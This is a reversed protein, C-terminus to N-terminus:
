GAAGRAAKIRVEEAYLRVLEGTGALRVRLEGDPGLGLVEGAREDGDAGPTWAIASGPALAARAAYAEGIAAPGREELERLAELIGALAVPRVRDVLDEAGGLSVAPRDAFEPGEPARACNLGLGIVVFSGGATGVGECLIGGAKARGLWLDNPWKIRLDLGPLEAGVARAVGVAAALPIWTWIDRRAPRALVSLFLNGPLSRWERGVRGRGSSQTRASVWTGHPFGDEGLRRALDNTSGCSDVVTNAVVASM